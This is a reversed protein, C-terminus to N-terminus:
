YARATGRAYQHMNARDKARLRQENDQNKRTEEGTAGINRTSTLNTDKTADLQRDAGYKTGELQKGAVNVSADAQTAAVDRSADAETSAVDRSADAQTSAVNETAQSSRETNQISADTEMKAVNQAADRQIDATGLASEKQKVATFKSADASVDAEYRDASYRGSAIREQSANNIKNTLRAQEGEVITGLRDQQGASQMNKRQQEGQAATMGLDRTHQQNAANNQIDAQASMAEMGYAFEDKMLAAQNRQELDAQQTMNGQALAQNFKGLAMANQTDVMSQVFNGQYANKQMQGLTDDEDPKYNYFDNLLQNANFRSM